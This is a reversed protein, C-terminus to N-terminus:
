MPAMRVVSAKMGRSWDLGLFAGALIMSTEDMRPEAPVIAWRPGQTETV